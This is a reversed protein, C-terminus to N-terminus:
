SKSEEVKMWALTDFNFVQDLGPWVNACGLHVSNLKAM